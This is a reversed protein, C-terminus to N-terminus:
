IEKKTQATTINYYITGNEYFRRMIEQLLKIKNNLKHITSGSTM